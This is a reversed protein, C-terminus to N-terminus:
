RLGAYIWFYIGAPLWLKLDVILNATQMQKASKKKPTLQAVVYNNNYPTTIIKSDRRSLVDKCGSEEGPGSPDM